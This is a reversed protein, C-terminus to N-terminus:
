SKREYIVMGARDGVVEFGFFKLWRRNQAETHFIQATIKSYKKAYADFVVRMERVYRLNLAPFAIMWVYVEGGLLTFPVFGLFLLPAGDPAEVFFCESSKKNLLELTLARDRLKRQLPEDLFVACAQDWGDVRIVRIGPAPAKARRIM